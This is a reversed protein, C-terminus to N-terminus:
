CHKLVHVHEHINTKPIGLPNPFIVKFVKSRRPYLPKLKLSKNHFPFSLQVNYFKRVFKTKLKVWVIDPTRQVYLVYAINQVLSFDHITEENKSFKIM